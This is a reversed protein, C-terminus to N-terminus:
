QRSRQQLESVLEPFNEFDRGAWMYPGGDRGFRIDTRTGRDNSSFNPRTGFMITLDHNSCSGTKRGQKWEVHDEYLPISTSKEQRSAGLRGSGDRSVHYCHPRRDFGAHRM